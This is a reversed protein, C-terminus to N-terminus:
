LFMRTKNQLVKRSSHSATVEIKDIFTKCFNCLIKYFRLKTLFLKTKLVENM